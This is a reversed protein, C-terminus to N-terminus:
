PTYYLYIITTLLPHFEQVIDNNILDLSYYSLSIPM